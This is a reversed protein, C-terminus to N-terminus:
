RAELQAIRAELAAVQQRTQRLAEWAVAGLQDPRVLQTSDPDDKNTLCWAGFMVGFRDMVRKVGQAIFGAHHRKGDRPVPVMKHQMIVNGDADVDGAPNPEMAGTPCPEMTNGGNLWRYLVPELADVFEGAFSLDGVVEKLREDSTNIVGTAAYVEKWLFSSTGLNYANNASPRFHGADETRNRAVQGAISGNPQTFIEAYTGHATSTWAEAARFTFLCSTGSFGDLIGATGDHGRGGINFMADGLAMATPVAKTGRARRGGLFSANTGYTTPYFIAQNDSEMKFTLLATGPSTATMDGAANTVWAASKVNRGTGDAYILAGDTGFPNTASVNGAGALGDDLDTRLAEVSTTLGDFASKVQAIWRYFGESARQTLTINGDAPPLNLSM